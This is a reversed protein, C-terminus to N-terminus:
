GPSMVDAGNCVYPIAGMDVLVSPLEEVSENLLTPFLVEDRRALKIDGDIIFVTIGGETEAQVISNTEDRLLDGAEDKM